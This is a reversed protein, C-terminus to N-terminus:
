NNANLWTLYDKMGEELTKFEHDCGAERLREINARTFSQYSQKLGKPFDRYEIKGKGHWSMISRAVDNFSRSVGTGVNFIGSQSPNKMFWINVAVIDDVHIFDREQEGAAYGGSGEFLKVHSKKLIQRNFQYAVSAMAGKHAEGPGYVNFYRLGVVQSGPNAYLRRVYQDFLLKSYAYVNIPHEYETQEVFAETRGYVAASSAYILPTNANLSYQLIQKSYEYNNDMMYRGDQERTDSCAGQHFILELNKFKNKKKLLKRFDNIDLYDEITYNAINNFKSGDSMDDVVILDERGSANLAKVLNSGIFGCGGTIIIM